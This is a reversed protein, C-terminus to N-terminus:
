KKRAQYLEKSKFDAPLNKVFNNGTIRDKLGGVKYPTLQLEGGLLETYNVM